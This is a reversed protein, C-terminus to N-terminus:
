AGNDGGDQAELTDILRQVEGARKLYLHKLTRLAVVVEREASKIQKDKDKSMAEGSLRTYIIHPGCPM